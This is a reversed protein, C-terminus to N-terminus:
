YDFYRFKLASSCTIQELVPGKIGSEMQAALIRARNGVRKYRGLLRWEV